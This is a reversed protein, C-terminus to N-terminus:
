FSRMPATFGSAALISTSSRPTVVIMFNSAKRSVKPFLEPHLGYLTVLFIRYVAPTNVLLRYHDESEFPLCIAKGRSPEM